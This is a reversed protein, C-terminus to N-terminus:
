TVQLAELDFLIKTSTNKFVLRQCQLGLARPYVNRKLLSKKFTCTKTMRKMETQAKIMLHTAYPFLSEFGKQIQGKLLLECLLM